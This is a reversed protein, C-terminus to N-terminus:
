FLVGRYQAALLPNLYIIENKTSLPQLILTGERKPLVAKPLAQQFPSVSTTSNSRDIGPISM